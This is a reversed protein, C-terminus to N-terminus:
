TSGAVTLHFGTEREVRDQISSTLFGLPVGVLLLLAAVVVIAAIVGGLIKLAKMDTKWIPLCHALGTRTRCRRKKLGIGSRSHHEFGSCWPHQLSIHSIVCNQSTQDGAASPSPQSSLM